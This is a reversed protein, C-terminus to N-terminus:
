QMVRMNPTSSPFSANARNLEAQTIQEVEKILENMAM